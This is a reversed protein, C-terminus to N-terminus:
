RSDDEATRRPWFRDNGGRNAAVSRKIYKRAARAPGTKRFGIDNLFDLFLEGSHLAPIVENDDRRGGAVNLSTGAANNRCWIYNEARADSVCCDATQLRGNIAQPAGVHANM